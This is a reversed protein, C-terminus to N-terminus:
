VFGFVGDRKRGDLDVYHGKMFRMDADFWYAGGNNDRATGQIEAAGVVGDFDTITSMEAGVSPPLVHILPNSPVPNFSEDFGGPIPRPDGDKKGGRAYAAPSALVGLGALGGAVVAGRRLFTGRKFRSLAARELVDELSASREGAFSASM